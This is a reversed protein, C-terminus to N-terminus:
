GRSSGFTPEAGEAGARYWRMWAVFRRIGEDLGVKPAYGLLAGARAIDAFTAPVDGPQAPLTERRATVGLCREISGILSELTVPTANGLNLIEAGAPRRVAAAVGDVVDDIFTMDRSDSPDGHVPIAHGELMAETFIWYAMDPRGWPGYVTFFRLGVADLGFLGRYAHVILEGARKTAAYLSVPDDVRDDEAFPVKANGGYVSSSSAWVLRPPPSRRRVAELVNLLGRLNAREYVFPDRLAFRVGAQAALHVVVDVDAALREIPELHELDVPHFAFGPIPDLRALRARKLSPAYYGNLDDVGVVGCGEGLLRRAVHFGIFGAAGTVLVKM